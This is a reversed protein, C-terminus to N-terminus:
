AGVRNNRTKAQVIAYYVGYVLPLLLPYFLYPTHTAHKLGLTAIPVMAAVNWPIVAALPFATFSIDKALDYKNLGCQEYPRIMLHGTMVISIAQTCGGVLGFLAIVLTKLYLNVRSSPKLLLKQLGDLMGASELVGSLSCAILLIFGTKIMGWMGGGTIINALPNAPSMHFGGFLTYVIQMIGMGQLFFALLIACVTSALLSLRINVRFCALVIILVAPLFTLLGIHFSEAIDLTLSSEGALLPHSISVLLFLGAALVFPPLTTKMLMKINVYVDTETVSSLLFMASSMPSCRDGVYIGSIIAGATVYPDVGGGRALVMLIIGITGVTGFSTGLLTSVLSCLIFAYFIFLHPQILPLSYYVLAGVTGCSLWGAVVCGILLLVPIVIFAKKAGERAFSYIYSWTRGNIRSLFAFYVLGLLLPWGLYISHMVAFILAGITLVVGIIGAM